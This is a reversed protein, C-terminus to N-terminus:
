GQGGIDPAATFGRSERGAEYGRQWELTHGTPTERSVDVEDGSSADRAARPSADPSYEQFPVPEGAVEGITATALRDMSRELEAGLADVTEARVYSAAFRKASIPWIDSSSDDDPDNTALWDGAAATITGHETEVIFPIDVRIAM